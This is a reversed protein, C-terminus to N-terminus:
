GSGWERKVALREEKKLVQNQMQLPTKGSGEERVGASMERSAKLVM